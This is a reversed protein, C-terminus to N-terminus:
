NGISYIFGDLQDLLLLSEMYSCMIFSYVRAYIGLKDIAESNPDFIELNGNGYPSKQTVLIVEGTKKFGVLKNIKTDPVNINYLKSFLRGVGGGREKMMMWLSCVSVDEERHYELLVLSERLKSITEISCTRNSLFGTLNVEKFEKATLDFSMISESGGNEAALRDKALWYIFGDIVVQPGRLEISGRPLNTSIVSWAGTSLTFVRVRWPGYDGWSMWKNKLIIPDFTVPCVGFGFANRIGAKSRSDHYIYPVPIGVSKKISPNWVVVMERSLKSWSDSMHEHYIIYLCLLGHSSGVFNGEYRSLLDPVVCPDESGFEKEVFSHDEFSTFYKNEEKNRHLFRHPQPHRAGYSVIFDRSDILRKWPKSVSRFRALPKVPLRKLIETQIEVPIYESSM